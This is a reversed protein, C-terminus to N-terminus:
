ISCQAPELDALRKAEKKAAYLTAWGCFKGVTNIDGDVASRVTYARQHDGYTDRESTIFYKGGYITPLIRSSFFRMTSDDFFHSGRTQADRIIQNIQTYNTM